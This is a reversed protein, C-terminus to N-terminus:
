FHIYILISLIIVATWWQWSLIAEIWKQKLSKM